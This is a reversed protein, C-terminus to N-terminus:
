HGHNLLADANLEESTEEFGALSKLHLIGAPDVLFTRSKYQKKRIRSSNCYVSTKMLHSETFFRDNKKCDKFPFDLPNEVAVASTISM